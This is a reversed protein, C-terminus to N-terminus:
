KGQPLKVTITQGSLGPFDKLLAATLIPVSAALSANASGSAVQTAARGEWVISRDSRRKMQLEVQNVNIQSPGSGGVPVSVGGGMGFGSGGTAGGFGVSVPSSRPPAMRAMQTANVSVTYASKDPNPAAPFGLAAFQQAVSGAYSRFELSTGDVGAAPVVTLTDKPIPQNLHFRTVEATPTTACGAVMVAAALPVLIANSFRSMQLFEQLV